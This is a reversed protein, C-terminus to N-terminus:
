RISQAVFRIFEDRDKTKFVGCDELVQEFIAGVEQQLFEDISTATFNKKQLEAYWPLHKTLEPYDSPDTKEILCKKILELETMLRGPLVALGMVEILGINEKKIHFLDEKPHFVGYPREKTALNNRLVLYFKYVGEVYNLIPTITNHLDDGTKAYINLSENSYAKWSEFLKNVM